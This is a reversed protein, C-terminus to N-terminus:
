GFSCSGWPARVGAPGPGAQVGAAPGAAREGEVANNVEQIFLQLKMVLTAAHADVKGPAEQQVARFATNVWNKVEFDDSLFRSFDMAAPGAAPVRPVPRPPASRVWRRGGAATAGGRARFRARFRQAPGRGAM